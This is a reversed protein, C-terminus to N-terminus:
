DLNMYIQDIIKSTMVEHNFDFVGLAPLLETELSHSNPGHGVDHCLSLFSVKEIM